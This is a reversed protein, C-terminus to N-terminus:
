KLNMEAPGPPSDGAHGVANYATRRLDLLVHIADPLSGNDALNLPEYENRQLRRRAAELLRVYQTALSWFQAADRLCELVFGFSPDDAASVGSGPTAAAVADKSERAHTGTGVFRSIFLVRAAVWASWIFWPSASRWGLTQAQACLDVMAACSELCTREFPQQTGGLAPYAYYANIKLMTAHYIGKVCLGTAGDLAPLDQYWRRASASLTIAADRKFEEGQDADPRSQLTHARGLLDVAEILFAMPSLQALESATFRDRHLVPAFFPAQQWASGAWLADTSPLRRRIDADRLAFDWGTSASSYRDLIYILWFLRRRAEDEGWSQPPPVISTRSLSGVRNTESPGNSQSSRTQEDETMLGLHVASRTLLALIGWSSPGQESGILDLALLGLAHISAISTSEIAHSLVHSKAASRLQSKMGALRPDDSLRLSVVVIAHVTINWPSSFSQKPIIPAWPWIHAYYLNILAQVIDDAPLVHPDLFSAVSLGGPSPYVDHSPDQSPVSPGLHPDASFQNGDHQYGRLAASGSSSPAAVPQAVQATQWRTVQAM